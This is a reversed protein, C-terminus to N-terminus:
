RVGAGDEPVQNMATRTRETSEGHVTLKGQEVRVSVLRITPRPQNAQFRLIAVPHGEHRYWSTEIDHQRAAESIRELLWQAKFPVAGAHLGEIRLALVNGEGTAV